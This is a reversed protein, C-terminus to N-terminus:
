SRVIIIEFLYESGPIWKKVGSSKECCSANIFCGDPLIM